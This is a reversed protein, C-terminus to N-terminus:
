ITSLLICVVLIIDLHHPFRLIIPVIILRLMITKYVSSSLHMDRHM